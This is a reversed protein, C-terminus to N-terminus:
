RGQELAIVAARLETLHAARIPTTGGAPAADTWRPAARGAAAYAAALSERLELLHELRVRTVGARLVPDTWCYDGPGLEQGARCADTQAAAAGAFLLLQGVLALLVNIAPRAKMVTVLSGEIRRNWGRHRGAATERGAPTRVVAVDVIVDPGAGRQAGCFEITAM